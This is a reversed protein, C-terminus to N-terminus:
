APEFRRGGPHSLPPNRRWPDSSNASPAHNLPIRDKLTATKQWAEERSNSQFKVPLEIGEDETAVAGSM